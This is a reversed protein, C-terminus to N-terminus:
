PARWLGMGAGRAQAEARRYVEGRPHEGPDALAQGERILKLGIDIGFLSAYASLTEDAPQERSGDPLDVQLPKRFLWPILVRTATRDAREVDLQRPLRDAAAAPLQVGLLRLTHDRDNWRIRLTRGDLIETCHIRQLWAGREYDRTRPHRVATWTVVWTALAVVLYFPLIFRRGSAVPASTRDTQM